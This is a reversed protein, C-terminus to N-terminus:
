VAGAFSIRDCSHDHCVCANWRHQRNIRGHWCEASGRHWWRPKTLLSDASAACMAKMLFRAVAPFVSVPWIAELLVRFTQGAGRRGKESNACIILFGPPFCDLQISSRLNQRFRDDRASNGRATM